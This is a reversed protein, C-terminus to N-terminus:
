FLTSIHVHTASENQQGGSALVNYILQVQNERELKVESQIVSELNMWMM